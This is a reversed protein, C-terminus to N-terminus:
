PMCWLNALCWRSRCLLLFSQPMLVLMRSRGRGLPAFVTVPDAHFLIESGAVPAYLGVTMVVIGPTAILRSAWPRALLTSLRYQRLPEAQADM